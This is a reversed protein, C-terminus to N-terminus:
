VLNDHSVNTFYAHMFNSLFPLSSTCTCHVCCNLNACFKIVHVTKLINKIIYKKDSGPNSQFMVYFVIFCAFVVTYDFIEKENSVFYAAITSESTLLTCTIFNCWCRAVHMKKVTCFIDFFIVVTAYSCFERTNNMMIVATRVKCLVVGFFYSWSLDYSYMYRTAGWFFRFLWNKLVKSQDVTIKKWRAPYLM